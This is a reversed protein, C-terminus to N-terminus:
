WEKVELSLFCLLFSYIAYFKDLGVIGMFLNKELVVGVHSSM